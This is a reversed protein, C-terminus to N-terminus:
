SNKKQSFLRRSFLDHSDQKVQSSCPSKWIKAIELIEQLKKATTSVFFQLNIFYTTKKTSDLPPTLNKWRQITKCFNDLSTNKRISCGTYNINCQNQKGKAKWIYININLNKIFYISLKRNEYIKDNKMAPRPLYTCFM